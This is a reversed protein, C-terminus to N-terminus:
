FINLVNLVFNLHCNKMLLLETRPVFRELSMMKLLVPVTPVPVYLWFSM